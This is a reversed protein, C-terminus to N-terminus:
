KREVYLRNIRRSRQAMIRKKKTHADEKGRAPAGGYLSWTKAPTKVPKKILSRFWRLLREFLSRIRTM